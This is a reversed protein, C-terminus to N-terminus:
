AGGISGKKVEKRVEASLRGLEEKERNVFRFFPRVSPNVETVKDMIKWSIERLDFHAQPTSRLETMYIIERLNSTFIVPYKYGFPVVYQAIFPDIDKLKNYLRKAEEMRSRYISLLNNENLITPPIEYGFNTSLLKRQLSLLRHRQLERFAGFNTLVEFTYNVHELSRDPKHRRNNRTSSIEEIMKRREEAKMAIVNKEIENYLGESREFYFSTLISLVANDDNEYNLIKVLENNDNSIDKFYDEKLYIPLNRIKRLYEITSIGYQSEVSDILKPFIGKMEKLLEEYLWISESSNISKLRELLHAFARANGSIGINTLTSAPLIFRAEDLARSRISTEYSKTLIKDTESDKGLMLKEGNPMKFNANEIPYIEKLRVILEKRIKSYDSFSEDCYQIYQEYLNNPIGIREPDAYLYKSNIKNDYYVYRSSKELYSLGIRGEEIIKSLINSVNQIGVQATVLESISEDGYELFILEYFHEGKNEEGSFERDWLKRLDVEATRSYRSMLAGRDIMKPLNIIFVDRDRNSFYEM